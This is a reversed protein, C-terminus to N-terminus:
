FNAFDDFNPSSKYLKLDSFTVVTPKSTKDLTDLRNLVCKATRNKACNRFSTSIQLYKEFIGGKGGIEGRGEVCFEFIFPPKQVGRNGGVGRIQSFFGRPYAQDLTSEPNFSSENRNLEHILQCVVKKLRHTSFLLFSTHTLGNIFM